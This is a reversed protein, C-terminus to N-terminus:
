PLAHVDRHLVGEIEAPLEGRHQAPAARRKEEVGIRRLALRDRLLQDIEVAFPGRDECRGLAGIGLLGLAIKDLIAAVGRARGRMISRRKEGALRTMLMKGLAEQDALAEM